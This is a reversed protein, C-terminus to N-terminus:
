PLTPDGCDATPGCKAYNAKHTGSCNRPTGEVTPEWIGGAILNVGDTCKLVMYASGGSIDYRNTNHDIGTNGAGSNCTWSLTESTVRDCAAESRAASVLVAGALLSAIAGTQIFRNFTMM